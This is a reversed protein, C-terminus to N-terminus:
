PAFGMLQWIPVSALMAITCAVFFVHSMKQIKPFDVMNGGTAALSAVTTSNTFNFTWVQQISIVIFMPIFPHYGFSTGVSVFMGLAIAMMVAQSMVVLRVLFFFICLILTYLYANSFIWGIYPSLVQALWDNIGTMSMGNGIGSLAGIFIITDWPIKSRFDSSTLIGTVAMIVMGIIATNAASVGIQKEMIWMVLTLILVFAAVKEEKKMKGLEKLRRKAINEGGAGTEAVDEEPYIKFIMILCIVCTVVFWVGCLALWKFWSLDNAADGIYGLVMSCLVSGTMFAHGAACIPIYMACWLGAAGNSNKEFGLERATEAAFPSLLAGKANNSPICPSIVTSAIMQATIQWKYKDPFWSLIILAIRQLLGVKTLVAGMAIAPILLWVTTGSFASFSESFSMVGSMALALMVIILSIYDPVAKTFLMVIMAALIGLYRMSLNTLGEPPTISAIAVAILAAIALKVVSTLLEKKNKM